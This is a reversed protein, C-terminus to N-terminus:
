SRSCRTWVRHRTATRCRAGSSPQRANLFGSRRKRSSACKMTRTWLLLTWQCITLMLNIQEGTLAGTSLSFLGDANGAQNALEALHADVAVAPKWENGPKLVFHGIEAEQARLEAWEQDTLRELAAPFLIKDEKYVMDRMTGSMQVGASKLVAFDTEGDAALMSALSRWLARIEDQVGWM